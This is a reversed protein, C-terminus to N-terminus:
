EIDFSSRRPRDSTQGPRGAMRNAEARLRANDHKRVAFDHADALLAEVTPWTREPNLVCVFGYGAYVPHPMLVDVITLDPAEIGAVVENYRARPLGINLRFVNPRNLDSASDHADSQVLTAWGQRPRQEDDRDPDYIAFFDGGGELMRTGPFAALADRVADFDM